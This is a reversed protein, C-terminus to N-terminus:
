PVNVQMRRTAYSGMHCTISRLESIINGYLVTSM